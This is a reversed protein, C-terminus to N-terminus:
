KQQKPVPDVSGGAEVECSLLSLSLLKKLGQFERSHIDVVSRCETKSPFRIGKPGRTCNIMALYTVYDKFLTSLSRLVNRLFASLKAVDMRLSTEATLTSVVVLDGTVGKPELKPSFAPPAQKGM